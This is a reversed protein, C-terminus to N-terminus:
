REEIVLIHDSVPIQCYCMESVQYLLERIFVFIKTKKVSATDHYEHNSMRKYYLSVPIKLNKVQNKEIILPKM